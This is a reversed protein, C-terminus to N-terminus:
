RRRRVNVKRRAPAANSTTGAAFGSAGGSAGFAGSFTPAPGSADPAFAPAAQGFTPAAAANPQQGFAFPAPSSAPAGFGAAAQGGFMVPQVSALMHSACMDVGVSTPQQGPGPAAGFTTNGAADCCGAAKAGNKEPTYTLFLTLFTCPYGNLLDKMSKAAHINFGATNTAGFGTPASPQQGFGSASASFPAPQFPNPNHSSGGAPGGFGGGGFSPAPNSSSGTGFAPASGASRMHVAHAVICHLAASM